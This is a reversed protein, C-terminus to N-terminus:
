LNFRGKLANYNHLVETSSLARNYTQFPGLKGSFYKNTGRGITSLTLTNTNSQPSSFTAGNLYIGINNSLDRYIVIYNWADTALNNGGSEPFNLLTGAPKVRLNTASSPNIWNQSSSSDGM